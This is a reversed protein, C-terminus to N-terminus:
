DATAQTYDNQIQRTEDRYTQIVKDRCAQDTDCNRLGITEKANADELRKQRDADAKLMDAQRADACDKMAATRAAQSAPTTQAWLAPAVLLLVLATAFPYRALHRM